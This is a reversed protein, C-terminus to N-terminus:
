ALVVLFETQGDPAAAQERAIQPDVRADQAPLTARAEPVPGAPRAPAPLAEYLQPVVPAASENRVVLQLSATAGLAVMATLAEPSGALVPGGSQAAVPPPMAPLAPLLAVILLLLLFPARHSKVM